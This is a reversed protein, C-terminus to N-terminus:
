SYSKPANPLFGRLRPCARTSRPCGSRASGSAFSGSVKQCGAANNVLGPQTAALNHVLAAASSPKPAGQKRRKHMVTSVTDPCGWRGRPTNISPRFVLASPSIVPSTRNRGFPTTACLVHSVRSMLSVIKHFRSRHFGANKEPITLCFTSSKCQKSWAFMM